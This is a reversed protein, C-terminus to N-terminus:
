LTKLFEILARKEPDSLETGFYHGRDEVFDPCKSNELLEPVLSRLLEASEQPSLRQLRIKILDNKIHRALMFLQISQAINARSLGPESLTMNVNALLKVPTGAPVPGIRLFGSDALPRLFMPLNPEPIYLWSERTTRAISREGLRLGPWLLKRVADDFAAMRGRVSPDGNTIGLANNHLFPATAWISALSPVRYYGPGGEPMPFTDNRRTFPNFVEISGVSPSRKYTESSFNDWVHGRMANTALARCANTKVLTVPIRADSSLYNGVRFDPALVSRRFWAREEPSRRAMGAPPRKSSHCGACNDAFAIKGRTLLATDTTLYARGGPADELHMAGASHIFFAALNQLRTETNQWNVSGRRARAVEFPRQAVGGVLPKHDRIWEEHYEGINVYVRALAGPLGVGDAGDKLIHPVHMRAQQGPIDMNGGGMEEPPRAAAAALRGQVEFIANMNSPNLINDTALFSTDLTGDKMARLLQLVFSAEGMGNGFVGATKFYQAGINTSLNSWQPNEPDAPPHLPHPGVHCFGCSMGVTYPRILKPDNYYNPDSYYRQANWRRRAEGTFLPNPFLRLGVIGSPRGYVRPDVGPEPNGQVPVDLYLGLSDPGGQRMNPDNIVGMTAFRRPRNRSDITRLLDTTGYGYRALWEWFAENGGTWLMWTNRGKMQEPTLPIGGDIGPMVDAATEPFSAATLGSAAAADKVMGHRRPLLLFLLFIFLASVAAVLAYRWRRRGRGTGSNKDVAM